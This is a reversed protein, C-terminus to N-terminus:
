DDTVIVSFGTFLKGGTDNAGAIYVFNHIDGCIKM